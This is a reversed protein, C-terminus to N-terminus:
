VIKIDKVIMENTNMYLNWEAFWPRMLDGLDGGTDSNELATDDINCCQGKKTLTTQRKAQSWSTANSKQLCEYCEIFQKCSLSRSLWDSVWHTGKKPCARKSRRAWVVDASNITSSPLKPLPSKFPPASPAQTSQVFKRHSPLELKAINDRNLKSSPHVAHAPRTTSSSM